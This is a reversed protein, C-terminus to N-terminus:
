VVSALCKNQQPSLGTIINIMEVSKDLAPRQLSQNTNANPFSM